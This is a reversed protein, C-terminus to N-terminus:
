SDDDSSQYTIKKRKSKKRVFSRNSSEQESQEERRRRTPKKNIKKKPKYNDYDDSQSDYESSSREIRRPTKSSPNKKRTKKTKPPEYESSNESYSEESSQIYKRKKNRPSIDSRIKKKSPQSLLNKLNDLQKTKQKQPSNERNARTGKKTYVEEEQDSDVRYKSESSTRNEPITRLKGSGM